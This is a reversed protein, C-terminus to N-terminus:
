PHALVPGGPPRRTVRGMEQEEVAVRRVAHACPEAPHVGLRHGFDCSHKSKGCPGCAGAGSALMGAAATYEPFSGIASM